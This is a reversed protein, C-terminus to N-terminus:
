ALYNMMMMLLGIRALEDDDNDDNRTQTIGERAVTGPEVQAEDGKSGTGCMAGKGKGCPWDQM